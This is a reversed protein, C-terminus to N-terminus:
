FSNLASALVFLMPTYLNQRLRVISRPLGGKPPPDEEECQCPKLRM